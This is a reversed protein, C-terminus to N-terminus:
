NGEGPNQERVAGIHSNIIGQPIPSLDNYEYVSGADLRPNYKLQGNTSNAMIIVFWLLDVLSKSLWSGQVNMFFLILPLIRQM